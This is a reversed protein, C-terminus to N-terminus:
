SFKELRKRRIEDISLDVESERKQNSYSELSADLAAQLLEQESDGQEVGLSMAIAKELDDDEENKAERKDEMALKTDKSAKKSRYPIDKSFDIEDDTECQPLDGRVVFIHYGDSKLQTLLLSLYTNSVYEPEDLVSNLNYWLNKSGFRRLTFWHNELNCIFAM